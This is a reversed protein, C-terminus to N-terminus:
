RLCFNCVVTAVGATGSPQLRFVGAPVGPPRLVFVGVPDGTSDDYTGALAPVVGTTGGVVLTHGFEGRTFFYYIGDDERIQSLGVLISHLQASAADGGPCLSNGGAPPGSLIGGGPTQGLATIQSDILETGAECSQATLPLAVAEGPPAGVAGPDISVDLGGSACGPPGPPAVLFVESPGGPSLVVYNAQPCGGGDAPDTLPIDIPGPSAAAGSVSGAASAGRAFTLAVALSVILIGLLPKRSLRM